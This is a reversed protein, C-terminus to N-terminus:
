NRAGVHHSVVMQLEWKLLDLAMKQDGLADLMCPTYLSAPLVNMFFYLYPPPQLSTEAAFLM